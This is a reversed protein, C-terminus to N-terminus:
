RGDDLQQLAENRMSDYGAVISSSCSPGVDISFSQTPAGLLSETEETYVSANRWPHKEM